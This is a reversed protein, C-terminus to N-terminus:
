NGQKPVVELYDFLTWVFQNGTLRNLSGRGCRVEDYQTVEDSFIGPGYIAIPVPEGSHEGKECPTSHDACLALLTNEPLNNKLMGVMEDYKEIAAVKGQPDNDHGMLDTAKFHVYVLDFDEIAQLAKQAKLPYNTDVSGTFSEDTETHYGTMKAVGLVTDEGAIVKCTFGMEKGLQPINTMKGAGRTILFNAPLKNDEIRKLNVPHNKWKEYVVKFYENLVAATKQAQISDDLPLVEKYPSGDNPAKPDSDSIRDSLGEGRMVLVARHETAEKLIFEVGNIVTHNIAEVLESTGVRIRGARRDIVIGTDDVTAFNCRLAIDGEKLDLGVGAAEIPGRGPYLQHDHGFLILHGMDTGVTIGPSIPDMLGSKGKKAIEDLHPTQAFQLPSLHNLEKVPRDGLGDAIAVIVKKKM